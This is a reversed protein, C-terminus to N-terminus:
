VAAGWERASERAIKINKRKKKKKTKAKPPQTAASVRRRKCFNCNARARHADDAPASQPIRLKVADLVEQGPQENKDRQNAPRRQSKQPEGPGQAASLDAFYVTNRKM